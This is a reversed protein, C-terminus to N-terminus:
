VVKKKKQQQVQKVTNQNGQLQQNGSPPLPKGQRTNNKTPNPSNGTGAAGTTPTGSGDPNPNGGMANGFNSKQDASEPINLEDEAHPPFDIGVRWEPKTIGGNLFAEQLAAAKDVFPTFTRNPFELEVKIELDLYSEDKFFKALLDRYWHKWMVDNILNREDDLTVSQFINVTIEATSRNVMEESNFISSPMGTGMLLDKKLVDKEKLIQDLSNNIKVEQYKVDDNIVIKNGSQSLEAALEELNYSSEKTVTFIGVPAYQTENLEPLIKQDIRRINESHFILPLLPSMGYSYTDPTVGANERDFVILRSFPLMLPGQITDAFPDIDKRYVLEEYATGDDARLKEITKHQNHYEYYLPQFTEVDVHISGLQFGNVPKLIIPTGIPINVKTEPTEIEKSSWAKWLVATGYVFSQQYSRRIHSFVDSLEDVKSIFEKFKKHKKTGLIKDVESDSDERKSPTDIQLPVIRQKIRTGMVYQTFFKIIRKVNPDSEYMNGLRSRTKLDHPPKFSILSKDRNVMSLSKLEEFSDHKANYIPTSEYNSQVHKMPIVKKNTFDKQDAYVIFREVDKMIGYILIM